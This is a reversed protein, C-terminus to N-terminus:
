PSFMTKIKGRILEATVNTYHDTWLEQSPRPTLKKFGARELAAASAPGMPFAAVAVSTRMEKLQEKPEVTFLAYVDLGKAEGIKALIPSIDIYRNSINFALIGDPAVKSAFMDVAEKTVLHSPIADSSFADLLLYDYALPPKKQVTLRADGIIIPMSDGCESLYRFRDTDRAISVVLPDIEYFTWQENDRRHCAMSGIGLGVVGVTLAAHPRAERVAALSRGIAGEKTFYTLPEPRQQDAIRQAGHITSGHFLARFRGDSVDKVKLVGFFSRQVDAGYPLVVIAFLAALIGGHVVPRADRSFLGFLMIVTMIMVTNLALRGDQHLVLTLGGIVVVLLVGLGNKLLDDKSTVGNFSVVFAAALILLQYEATWTFYNPAVLASFLGGVLGGCSIFLYFETLEGSAPRSQYLARHCAMSVSLVAILGMSLIIGFHHVETAGIILAFVASARVMRPWFENDEGGDRFAFVFTLLFIALPLLWLIPGGSVDTQISATAAILFGSPVAAMVLWRMRLAWSTKQVAVNEPRATEGRWAFSACLLLLMIFVAFGFSWANSQQPLGVFPEVIFPYAFLAAFSGINSAAYFHYVNIRRDSAALWAQLLPANASLAFFPLGIAKIFTTILWIEEGNQPPEGWDPSVSFPLVLLAICTVAIHVGIAYRLPLFRILLHAYLYGALLLGQFVVMAVSWVAPTGGLTPLVVKTFIPQVSFILFASLFISIGFVITKAFSTDKRAVAISTM